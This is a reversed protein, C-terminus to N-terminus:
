ERGTDRGGRDPEREKEKRQGEGKREGKGQTIVLCPAQCIFIHPFLYTNPWLPDSKTSRAVMNSPVTEMEGRWPLGHVEHVRWGIRGSEQDKLRKWEWGRPSPVGWRGTEGPAGRKTWGDNIPGVRPLSPETRNHKLPLKCSPSGEHEGEGRSLSTFVINGDQNRCLLPKRWPRRSNAMAAGRVAPCRPPPHPYRNDWM